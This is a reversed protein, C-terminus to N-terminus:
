TNSKTAQGNKAELLKLTNTTAELLVANIDPFYGGLKADDVMVEIDAIKVRLIM